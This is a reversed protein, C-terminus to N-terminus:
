SRRTRGRSVAVAAESVRQGLQYSSQRTRGAFVRLDQEIHDPTFAVWDVVADFPHDHLLDAVGDPDNRIDGRLPTAGAPM